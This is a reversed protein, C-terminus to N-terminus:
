HNSLVPVTRIGDNLVAIKKSSALLSQAVELGEQPDKVASCHLREEVLSDRLRSCIVVNRSSLVNWFFRAKELGIEFNTESDTLVEDASTFESMGRIFGKPGVEGGCEAVLVISGGHETAECATYLSDIADYLTTDHPSGGASVIVIDARRHYDARALSISHTVGSRWSSLSNGAVIHALNGHWDSVSNITFDLGALQTIELMDVCSPTDLKFQGIDGTVRLKANRTITRKGSVSPIVSMRGGTAGYFVDPCIEGLGIKMDACLYHENVHVPTSFSPTEGVIKLTPKADPKHLILLHGRSEPNGLIDDVESKSVREDSLIPYIISVNDPNFSFTEVSNLLSHLLDEMLEQHEIRNVVIVISDVESVRQSFPLSDLPSEIVRLLESDINPLQTVTQPVIQEISFRDSLELPLSGEGYRLDVRM